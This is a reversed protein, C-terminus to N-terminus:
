LALEVMVPVHDSPQAWSRAAKLVAHGALAGALDDSVWVHDLRRGRDSAAWDRARYSWWTYLKQDAPVFRRVGDVWGGAQQWATLGETEVPTHSVVDLLERHSWVDEPLPAINLDGVLVARRPAQARTWATAEAVFSLKHAFKPNTEPDAIDGGAPVYFDHLILPEGPVDVTVGLYRCDGKGCWDPQEPLPAIPRKSLVAVGNYGKMGRALRHRFGLAEAAEHPFLEDPCKTEQLCLVDPALATALEALLSARLRVSNINWTAIRLARAM